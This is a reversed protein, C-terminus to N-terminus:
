KASAVASVLEAVAAHSTLQGNLQRTVVDFIANKIAATAAHGHALSGQVANNATAEKMDAIAKKACDDFQTDPIDM